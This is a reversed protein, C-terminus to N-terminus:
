LLEMMFNGEFLQWLWRQHNWLEGESTDGEKLTLLRSAKIM